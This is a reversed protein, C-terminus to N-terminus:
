PEEVDIRLVDLADLDHFTRGGRRKIAGVRRAAHDLDDGAPSGDSGIAEALGHRHLVVPDIGVELKRGVESGTRRLEHTVLAGVREATPLLWAGHNRVVWEHPVAPNAVAREARQS